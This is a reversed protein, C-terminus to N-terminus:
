EVVRIVTKMDGGNLSKDPDNLDSTLIKVTVQHEGVDLTRNLDFDIIAKGPEVLGSEYIVEGTDDLLFLFKFYCENGEPNILLETIHTEGQAIQMEPVLPMMIQSPDTNSMGDIHYAVATQDLGPVPEKQMWWLAGVVICAVLLVGFLPYLVMKGYAPAVIRVCCSPEEEQEQFVPIYGVVTENWKLRPQYEYLGISSGEGELIRDLSASDRGRLDACIRRQERPLQRYEQPTIYTWAGKQSDRFVGQGETGALASTYKM